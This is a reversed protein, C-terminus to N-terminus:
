PLLHCLTAFLLLLDDFLFVAPRLKVLDIHYPRDAAFIPCAPYTGSQVRPREKAGPSPRFYPNPSYQSKTLSDLGFSDNCAHKALPTADAGQNKMETLILPSVGGARRAASRAVAVHALGFM